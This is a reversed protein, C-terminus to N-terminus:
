LFVSAKAMPLERTTAGLPFLPVPDTTTPELCCATLTGATATVTAGARPLSGCM